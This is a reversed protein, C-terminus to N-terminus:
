YTVVKGTFGGGYVENLEDVYRQVQREGARIAKPKNPKLELVQKTEFNVADPRRGSPLRFEKQFGKGPDWLKHAERGARTAATEGGRVAGKSALPEAVNGADVPVPKPANQGSGSSPVLGRVGPTGSSKPTPLSPPSQPRGSRGVAVADLSSGLQAMGYLTDPDDTFARTMSYFLAGVPGGKITGFTALNKQVDEPMPGTEASIWAKPPPLPKPGELMRSGANPDEQWLSGDSGEYVTTGQVGHSQHVEEYTAPYKAQPQPEEPVGGRMGGPDVYTVPNGRVYAYVNTGDGLGIPDASV